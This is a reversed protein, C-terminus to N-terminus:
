REELLGRLAAVQGELEAIRARAKLLERGKTSASEEAREAWRRLAEVNRRESERTLSALDRVRDDLSDFREFIDRTDESM